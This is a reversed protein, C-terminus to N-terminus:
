QRPRAARVVLAAAGAVIQANGATDRATVVYRYSGKPLRCTFAVSMAEGVPVDRRLFERLVRGRTTTVTVTATATPGCPALDDVRYRLVARRGRKVTVNHLAVPTPRVTDVFIKDSVAVSVGGDLRYEAEVVHRGEGAALTLSKSATYPYWGGWEGAADRLRMECSASLWPLGNLVPAAVSAMVANGTNNPHVGDDVYFQLDLNDGTDGIRPDAGIDVLGDAFEQWTDRIMADYALRSAEFTLPEDSPLVTLVVVRFGAARREACYTRLGSYVDAATASHRFDGGGALVVCVNLDATARYRADVDAPADALMDAISAGATSSVYSECVRPLLALTQEPFKFGPDARHGAVISGGDWVVVGPVFFPSWGGDGAGVRLYRTYAADGNVVFRATLAGAAPPLAVTALLLLLFAAAAAPVHRGLSRLSGM